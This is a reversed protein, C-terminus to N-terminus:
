ANRIENALSRVLETTKRVELAEQVQSVFERKVNTIQERKSLNPKQKVWDISDLLDMAVALENLAERRLGRYATEKTVGILKEDSNPLYLRGQDWLTSLEARLCRRREFFEGNPLREPDLECLFAANTLTKIVANSWEHLGKLYSHVHPAVQLKRQKESSIRTRILAASAIIASILSVSLQLLEKDSM